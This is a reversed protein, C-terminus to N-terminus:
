LCTFKEFSCIIYVEGYYIHVNQRFNEDEELEELFLSYDKEYSDTPITEMEKDLSQLKWNRLKHRTHRDDYSKKVLVQLAVKFINDCFFLM